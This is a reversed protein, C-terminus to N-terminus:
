PRTELPLAIYVAENPTDSLLQAAKRVADPTIAEALTNLGSLYAPSNFHAYSLILRRQLTLLDQERGEESRRFQVRQAQVADDTITLTKMASTALRALERAREPSTTFRIETEVRSSQDNLESNFRMNYIGRADDRLVTKLHQNMLNRAISVQVALAPSWPASTFRWISVDAKPEVNIASVTERQGAQQLYDAASLARDRPIGALYRTVTAKLTPAPMDALMYWTVPARTATLWQDRLADPALADLEAATPRVFAPDGFRLRTIEKERRASSSGEEMAQRRSLAILNTKLAMADIGPTLQIAQYYQFLTDINTKKAQGSIKLWRAQSDISLSIGHSSIWQQTAESDWGQPAVLQAAIQAQWPKLGTSMFGAQSLATLVLNDKALPTKLWIVRDGNSLTWEEVQEQPYSKETVIAGSLPTDPLVSPTSASEVPPPTPTRSQVQKEIAAITKAEPLPYTTKGPFTFQILTDPATLWQRLRGNVDDLTLTELASQAAKGRSQSDFYPSKNLWSTSLIKVWDSFTRTETKQSMLKAQALMKQRQQEFEQRDFGYRLLREREEFLTKAGDLHHGPTVDAFLAFATAHRSIDSKRAVMNDVRDALEKSQRKLQRSLLTTVTQNILRERYNEIGFGNNEHFRTVLSVQSGGSESDQLRVLRQQPKLVPEAGELVPLPVAPTAAFQQEIQKKVQEIDIDGTIMLRIANPHYWRQYFAQLQSAPTHRISAETGIVPREPYLSGERVAAVRQQNMREAVGLKGRWEALIVNRKDDLDHQTLLSQSTMQSLAHLALPLEKVGAPPSFMYQTREYNTVANYHLGRQWGHQSLAASVGQPWDRSARYAMHEVMHAVGSQSDTENLSGADVTLRIDVRGKETAIPILTYHLGNVLQGEVITPLPSAPEAAHVPLGALVFAMAVCVGRLYSSLM